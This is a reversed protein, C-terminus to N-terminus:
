KNYLKNVFEAVRPMILRLKMYFRGHSNYWSWADKEFLLFLSHRRIENYKKQIAEDNKTYKYWEELERSFIRITHAKLPIMKNKKTFHYRDIMADGFDLRRVDFERKMISGKRQLYYYLEENIYSIKDCQAFLRHIIFEDEHQKGVPFRLTKFIERKYLKNWAVVYKGCNYLYKDSIFENTSYCKKVMEMQEKDNQAFEDSEYVCVYECIAFDSQDSIIANLLKEYMDAAIYDDSDVFGIYDGKAIDLGANRADSLGGNKKHIVIIRNDKKAFEDCIEGCKDPSGDDVLIIELNTYSQNIISYVCKELYKEVNYIPVIVSIKPNNMNCVRRFIDM